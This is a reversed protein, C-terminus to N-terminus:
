FWLNQDIKVLDYVKNFDVLSYMRGVYIGITDM